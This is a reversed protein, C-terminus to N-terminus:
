NVTQRLVESVPVVDVTEAREGDTWAALGAVTEPTTRGVVLVTGDLAAQFTARDLVREIAPAAQGEADLIRYLQASPVGERRATTIGSGLGRPYTVLGLGTEELSPLLAALALPRDAFGQGPRDLVGVAEPVAARAGAFA